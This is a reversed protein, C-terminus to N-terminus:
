YRHHMCVYLLSKYSASVVIQSNRQSKILTKMTAATQIKQNAFPKLDQPAISIMGRPCNGGSWLISVIRLVVLMMQCEKQGIAATCIISTDVTIDNVVM